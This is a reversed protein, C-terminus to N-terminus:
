SSLFSSVARADGRSGGLNALEDSARCPLILVCVTGTPQSNPRPPPNASSPRQSQRNTKACSVVHDSKSLVAVRRSQGTRRSATATPLLLARQLLELSALARPSPRDPTCGVVVEESQALRTARLALLCAGSSPLGSVINTSSSLAGLAM